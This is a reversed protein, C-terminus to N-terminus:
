LLTFLYEVASILGESVLKGNKYFYCVSKGDENKLQYCTQFLVEQGQILLLQPTYGYDIYYNACFSKGDDTLADVLYIKKIGNKKAINNIKTINNKCADCTTKSYFVIFKENENALEKIRKYDVEEYVNNIPLFSSSYKRSIDDGYFYIGFALTLLLVVSVASLIIIKM